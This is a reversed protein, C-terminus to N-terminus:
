RILFWILPLWLERAFPVPRDDVLVECADLPGVIEFLNKLELAESPLFTARHRRAHGVGMVRYERAAQALTVADEYRVGDFAPFVLTVSFPRQSVNGLLIQQLDPDLVALEEDTPEEPIDVYPWFRDSPRYDPPGSRSSPKASPSSAKSM